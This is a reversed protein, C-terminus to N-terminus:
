PESQLEPRELVVEGLHYAAAEFGQGYKSQLARVLSIVADPTGLKRLKEAMYWDM